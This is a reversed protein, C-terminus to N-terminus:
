LLMLKGSNKCQKAILDALSFCKSIIRWEHGNFKSQKHIPLCKTAMQYYPHCCPEKQIQWHTLDNDLNIKLVKLIFHMAHKAYIISEPGLTLQLTWNRPTDQMIQAHLEGIDSM